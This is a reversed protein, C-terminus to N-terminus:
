IVVQNKVSLKATNVKACFVTLNLLLILHCSTHTNMNMKKKKVKKGREFYKGQGKLSLRRGIRCLTM